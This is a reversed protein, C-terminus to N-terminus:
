DNPTTKIVESYTVAIPQAWARPFSYHAKAPLRPQREVRSENHASLLTVISTTIM